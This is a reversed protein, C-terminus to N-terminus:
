AGQPNHPESGEPAMDFLESFEDLAAVDGDATIASDRLATAADLQGAALAFLPLASKAHVITDAGGCELSVATGNAGGSVCFADAGELHIEFARAPSALKRAFTTFGLRLWDPEFHDNAEPETLLASGWRALELVAPLLREGLPTLGYLTAPTPPRVESRAIVGREELRALRESLVSTSVGLLARKLDSFRKPGLLLERVVLLTWREGVVEAARALPCYQAYRFEAV